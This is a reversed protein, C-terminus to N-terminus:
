LYQGGADLIASTDHAEEVEMQKKREAREEDSALAKDTLEVYGESVLWLLCARQALLTAHIFGTASLVVKDGYLMFTNAAVLKAQYALDEYTQKSVADQAEQLRDKKADRETM